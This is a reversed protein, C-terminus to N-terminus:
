YLYVPTQGRSGWPNKGLLPPPIHSSLQFPECSRSRAEEFTPGSDSEQFRHAGQGTIFVLKAIIARLPTSCFFYGSSHLPPLLDILTQPCIVPFHDLTATNIRVELPEGGVIAPISAKIKSIKEM